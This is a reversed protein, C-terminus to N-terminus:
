DSRSALQVGYDEDQSESQNQRHDRLQRKLKKRKDKLRQKEKQKDILKNEEMKLKVRQIYTQHSKKGM